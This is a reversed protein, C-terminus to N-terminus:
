AKPLDKEMVTMARKAAVYPALKTVDWVPKGAAAAADMEQRMGESIRFGVAIVGDLRQILECMRAIGEQRTQSTEVGFGYLIGIYPAIVPIGM